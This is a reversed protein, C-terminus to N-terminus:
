PAPDVIYNQRNIEERVTFTRSNTFPNIVNGLILSAALRYPFSTYTVTIEDDLSLHQLYDGRMQPEKDNVKIIPHSYLLYSFHSDKLINRFIGDCSDILKEEDLTIMCDIDGDIIANDELHSRFTVDIYDSYNRTNLFLTITSVGGWVLIMCIIMVIVKFRNTQPKM